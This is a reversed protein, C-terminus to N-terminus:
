CTEEGPVSEEVFSRVGHIFSFLCIEECALQKVTCHPRVNTPLAVTVACRGILVSTPQNHTKSNSGNRQSFRPPKVYVSWRGKSTKGGSCFFFFFFFRVKTTLPPTRGFGGFGGQTRAQMCSRRTLMMGVRLGCLFAPFAAVDEQRYITSLIVRSPNHCAVFSFSLLVM